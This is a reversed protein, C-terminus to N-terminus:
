TTVNNINSNIATLNTIAVKEPYLIGAVAKEAISQASTIYGGGSATVAGTVVARLQATSAVAGALPALRDTLEYLTEVLSNLTTILTELSTQNASTAAGTPLPLSAVSIPQTAPFNSVAVQHNDPLPTLTTLQDSPLPYETPRGYDIVPLPNAEDVLTVAGDSGYAQKVVEYSKGDIADVAIKAGGQGSNLEVTTTAM